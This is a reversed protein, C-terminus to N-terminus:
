NEAILLFRRSFFSSSRAAGPQHWAIQLGVALKLPDIARAIQLQYFDKESNQM